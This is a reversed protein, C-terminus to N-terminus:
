PHVFDYGNPISAGVTLHLNWSKTCSYDSGKYSIEATFDFWLDAGIVKLSGAFLPYGPTDVWEIRGVKQFVNSPDPGDPYFNANLPVTTISGTTSQVTLTGTLGGNQVYTWDTPDTDGHLTAQVQFAFFWGYDRPALGAQGITSYKGLSNKPAGGPGSVSQASADMPTGGFQVSTSCSPDPPPPPPPPEPGGGSGDGPDGPDGTGIGCGSFPLGDVTCDQRERGSPDDYRIPDGGVYAYRNWSGPDSPGGSAQYPDPSIFRGSGPSHYRNVAYDLGTEADRFYTAFKETGNTTASPRVCARLPGAIM